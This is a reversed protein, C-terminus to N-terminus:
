NGVGGSVGGGGEAGAGGLVVEVREIMSSPISNTDVVLAANVPQGRRGNSLVLNRNAGLGRLSVTSAGVTSTATNQVDGTTFQTVAPVFQPLQNLITEVGINSTEDFMAEDITTIPSNAEFDQRRIRSGTVVVEEALEDQAQVPTVRLGSGRLAAGTATLALTKLGASYYRRPNAQATVTRVAAALATFNLHRKNKHMYGEWKINTCM